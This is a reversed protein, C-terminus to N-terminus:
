RRRGCPRRGRRPWPWPAGSTGACRDRREDAVLRAEDDALQAPADVGLPARLLEAMLQLADDIRALQALEDLLELGLAGAELAGLGGELEEDPAVAAVVRRGELQDVEGDEDLLAVALVQAGLRRDLDLDVALHEVSGGVAVTRDVGQVRRQALRQAGEIRLEVADVEHVVLHADEVPIGGGGGLRAHDDVGHRLPPGPRGAAGVGVDDGSGPLREAIRELVGEPLATGLGGLAAPLPM